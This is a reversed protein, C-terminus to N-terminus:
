SWGPLDDRLHPAVRLEARLYTRTIVDTSSMTPLCHLVHDFLLIEGRSFLASYIRLSVAYRLRLVVTSLGDALCGGLRETDGNRKNKDGRERENERDREAEM